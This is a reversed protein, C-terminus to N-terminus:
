MPQPMQWTTLHEPYHGCPDSPVVLMWNGTSSVALVQLPSDKYDLCSMMNPDSAAGDASALAESMAVFVSSGAPVTAVLRGAM